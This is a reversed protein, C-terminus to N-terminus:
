YLPLYPDTGQIDELECQVEYDWEPSQKNIPYTKEKESSVLKFCSGYFQNIALRRKDDDSSNKFMEVLDEFDTERTEGRITIVVKNDLVDIKM